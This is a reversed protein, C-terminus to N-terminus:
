LNNLLSNIADRLNVIASRLNQEEFENLENNLYNRWTTLQARLRPQAFRHCNEELNSFCDDCSNYGPCEEYPYNQPCNM